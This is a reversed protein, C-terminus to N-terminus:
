DTVGSISDPAECRWLLLRPAPNMATPAALSTEVLVLLAGVNSGHGDDQGRCSQAWQLDEGYKDAPRSAVAALVRSRHLM